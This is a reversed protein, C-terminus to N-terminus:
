HVTFASLIRTFYSHQIKDTFTLSLLSYEISDNRQVLVRSECVFLTQKLFTVDKWCNTSGNHWINHVDCLTNNRYKMYNSWLWRHRSLSHLISIHSHQTCDDYGNGTRRTSTFREALLRTEILASQPGCVTAVVPPNYFAHRPLM